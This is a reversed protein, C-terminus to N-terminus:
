RRMSNWRSKTLILVDAENVIAWDDAGHQPTLKDAEAAVQAIDITWKADITEVVQREKLMRIKLM